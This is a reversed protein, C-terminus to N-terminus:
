ANCSLLHRKFHLYPTCHKPDFKLQFNTCIWCNQHSFKNSFKRSFTPRNRTQILQLSFQSVSAPRYHMLSAASRATRASIVINIRYIFQNRTLFTWWFTCFWLAFKVFSLFEDSKPKCYWENSNSTSISSSADHAFVWQQLSHTAGIERVFAAVDNGLM